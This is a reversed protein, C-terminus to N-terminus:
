LGNTMIVSPWRVTLVVSDKIAKWTHSVGPTWIVYDGVKQLRVTQQLHPFYLIFLGNILISLSTAESNIGETAREENEKHVGWKVEVGETKRISSKSSMFQGVFWGRRDHNLAEREANGTAIYQSNSM